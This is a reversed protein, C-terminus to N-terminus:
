QVQNRRASSRTTVTPLNEDPEWSYWKNAKRRPKDRYASLRTNASPYSSYRNKYQSDMMEMEEDFLHDQVEDGKVLDFETVSSPEIKLAKPFVKQM